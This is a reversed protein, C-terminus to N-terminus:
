FLRRQRGQRKGPKHQSDECCLPRCCRAPHPPCCAVENYEDVFTLHQEQLAVSRHYFREGEGPAFSGIVAVEVPLNGAIEVAVEPFTGTRALLRSPVRTLLTSVDPAGTRTGPTDATAKREWGVSTATTEVLVRRVPGFPEFLQFPVDHTPANRLGPDTMTSDLVKQLTEPPLGKEAKFKIATEPSASM